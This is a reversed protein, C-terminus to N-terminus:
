EEKAENCMLEKCKRPGNVLSIWAFLVQSFRWANNREFDYLTYQVKTDFSPKLFKFICSTNYMYISSHIVINQPPKYTRSVVCVHFQVYMYRTECAYATLYYLNELLNTQNVFYSILKKQKLLHKISCTIFFTCFSCTSLICACLLFSM